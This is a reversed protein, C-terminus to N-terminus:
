KRPGGHGGPDRSEEHVRGGEGDQPDAGAGGLGLEGMFRCDCREPSGLGQSGVSRAGKCGEAGLDGLAGLGRVGQQLVEGGAKGPFWPTGLKGLSGPTGDGTGGM